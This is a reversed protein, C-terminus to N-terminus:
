DDNANANTWRKTKTYIFFNLFLVLYHNTSYQLFQGTEKATGNGDWEQKEDVNCM